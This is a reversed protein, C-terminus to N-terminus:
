LQYISQYKNTLYSVFSDIHLPGGCVKQVLEDATYQAGSAHVEKRLWALMPQLNGQAIHAPISPDSRLAAAYFQASLLNGVTYGQFSGGLPGGFWHVDQLVGQSPGKPTVGLDRQYSENWADALDKVQLRGELLQCELEFRIMVHINYTVEDADTRILSAEVKNIAKYFSELSVGALQEPFISQLKPFYAQWFELSRGVLNEWLRSQSEHVGASAGHFVPTDEFKKAIGQEYLAHGVEHITSSLCEFLMREKVRTTIRIDDGGVSVMFPHPTKDIRGRNFDYGMDKAVQKCFLLQQEEPYFETLFSTDPSPKKSISQILPVLAQRLEAFLKRIRQTSMGYDYRSILPDMPHEYGPQCDALRKTLELNKELYPILAKFDELPRSKTWLLYGETFLSQMEAKLAPSVRSEREYERRAVRIVSAAESDPGQNKEFGKLSELLQGLEPDCAKQQILKALTALVKGRSEGAHAPLYTAQDWYLLGDIKGLGQLDSLKERLSQYAMNQEM